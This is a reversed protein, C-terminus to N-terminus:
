GAKPEIKSATKQIAEDDELKSIVKVKTKAIEKKGEDEGSQGKRFSRIGRGIAEGVQPLKGAGFIIFIIVLIIGIELPGFRFSM